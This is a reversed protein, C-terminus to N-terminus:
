TSPFLTPNKLKFLEYYGPELREMIGMKLAWVEPHAAKFGAKNNEWLQHCPSWCLWVVNSMDTRHAPFQKQTLVHSPTVNYNSGCAACCDAKAKNYARKVARKTACLGRSTSPLPKKRYGLM